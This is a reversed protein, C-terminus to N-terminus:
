LLSFMLERPLSHGGGKLLVRTLDLLYDSEHYFILTEKIERGDNCQRTYGQTLGLHQLRTKLERQLFGTM